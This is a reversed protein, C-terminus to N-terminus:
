QLQAITNFTIGQNNLFATMDAETWNDPVLFVRTESPRYRINDRAGVFWVAETGRVLLTICSSSGIQAVVLDSSQPDGLPNEELPANGSPCRAAANADMITRQEGSLTITEGPQFVVTGTSIFVRIPNGQMGQTTWNDRKDQAFVMLLNDVLTFRAPCTTAMQSPYVWFSGEDRLQLGDIGVQPSFSGDPFVVSLIDHIGEELHEGEFLLYTYNAMQTLQERPILYGQSNRYADWQVQVYNGGESVCLSQQLPSTSTDGGNGQPQNGGGQPTPIFFNDGGSTKIFSNYAIYGGIAVIVLILVATVARNM